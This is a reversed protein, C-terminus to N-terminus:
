KPKSVSGARKLISVPAKERGHMSLGHCCFSERQSNEPWVGRDMTDLQKPYAEHINREDHLKRAKIFKRGRLMKDGSDETRITYSRPPQDGESVGKPIRVAEITAPISWRKQKDQTLVEQGVSFMENDHLLSRQKRDREQKVECNRQMAVFDPVESILTPSVM